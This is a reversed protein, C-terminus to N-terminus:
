AAEIEAGLYLKRMAPDQLLESANATLAVHGLSLVYARDAIGLAEFANQEVMLICMDESDRISAIADFVDHMMLPSLGASPEDLLLIEPGSILARALSLIQREGGSLASAKRNKKTALAPYQQMLGDFRKEKEQKELLRAGLMINEVVTLTGFVNDTQPVYGVKHYRVKEHIPVNSVEQGKFTISGARPRVYGAITKLLTSKGCGNPGLITVIERPNATLSIGTLIDAGDGYGARIDKAEIM